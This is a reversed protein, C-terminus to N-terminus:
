VWTGLDTSIASTLAKADEETLDKIYQSVTPDVEEIEALCLLKKVTQELARLRSVIGVLDM